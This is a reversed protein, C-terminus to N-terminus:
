VEGLSALLTVARCRPLAGRKVVVGCTESKGSRMRNRWADAGVAMDVVIVVQGAGGTDGAM